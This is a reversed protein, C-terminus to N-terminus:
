YVNHLHSLVHPVVPVSYYYDLGSLKSTICLPTSVLAATTTSAAANSSSGIVGSVPAMLAAQNSSRSASSSLQRGNGTQSSSGYNLHIGEEKMAQIVLLDSIAAELNNSNVKLAQECEDPQIFCVSPSLSFLIPHATYIPM